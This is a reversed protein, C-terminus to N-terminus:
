RKSRCANVFRMVWATVRVLRTFSSFREIAVVPDQTVVNTLFCIEREEESPHKPPLVPSKPWNSPHLKLWEPGNWWLKHEILELPFLGRSACDAPNQEGSVHNWRNPPLRDLIFSVRNGVYTKFRRPNGDLWNIVITSDTWGYIQEIPVKLTKRVHELLKTLLHAGCLELRPITLRKIPAVKTKSAILSTHVAGERDTMRFYVVGAYASESADSFGHIQFSVIQTQKPFYCRPIHVQHLYKLQSRWLMWEEKIPPPVPDDWEVKSEWVRQLLIKSKITSPAFWGLVDYIKAIDSVLKRKTLNEPPPQDTVSLKFHDLVSHWAIGLTKSYIEDSESITLSTQTDRLEPSIAQLVAPNSSNWKRLLFDAEAFLNQLQAQLRIGEEESDAGALCDDVYFSEEVVKSALPYKHAFEIANQKVAMNAIFASSAVGFTVRTMRCDKLPDKPEGRWLFRHLDRDTPPLEVARYMKSIDAVIAIRHMRFRLLVDILPPHVTPGVILTDNLSIGSTTKMSADFVARIKTTTSSEKHVAHMPLYFVESPPKTLDEAPVIEAHGLDFYELIVEGFKDFQGKYRLSRELSLFRRLAHSRSEGLQKANEKKPLPVVFRGNPQRSHSVKFHQLAKQEEPALNSGSCPNEEVEWFKRLLEDGSVCLTHHTTVHENPSCSLISGALVWGLHTEFAIPSGPPGSRRGHCLVEVFVDVGLLADIKGPCGFGPDALKLDSLHSWETKLPIPHLPLDCTVQPVVIATVNIRKDSPYIPAITFSAVSQLPAKCSLGAIGSIRLSQSARPLQLSQSLRESIFSASSANDLLARAEVYTGDPAKVLVRCTMLLSNSKLPTSTHSSVIESRPAVTAPTSNVTETGTSTVAPSSTINHARDIHLLSHHLKQCIKCRHISKCSKAFHNQGLCNMCMGHTKLTSVKTDHQMGRFKPCAYLPHREPGCLVCVPKPSSSQDEASTAFSAIAGSKSPFKKTSIIDPKSKRQNTDPVSSESAQARLNLFELLDKYDPVASSKQSHKQWEFMTTTDLKLEITSTVFPGPPDYGMAKLARLHQQLSDHLKRVEKGTGERLPAAELIAKVHAQHILRPRDYRDTLCKIAEEYNEGSRSLGEVANRASGGKLAQQLYVLKESNSLTTRNHVSIVFQEWFNRWQLINGSFTPVDLKPLKLGPSETHTASTTPTAARALLERLKLSCDFLLRELETQKTVLEDAEAPDLSMLEVKVASLDKKNDGLQEEHLRLRHVDKADGTLAGVADNVASLCDQIRKLRRELLKRSEIGRDPPPKLTAILKQFRLTMSAITDDHSDLTAQETTVDGEDVLDVVSMHLDKFDTDCTKLKSLLQRANEITDEDPRSELASLRTEIRTISAKVVGRRKGFNTLARKDEDGM